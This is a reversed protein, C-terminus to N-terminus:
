LEQEGEQIAKVPLYDEASHDLITYAGEENDKKYTQVHEGLMELLYLIFEQYIPKVYDYVISKKWLMGLFPEDGM